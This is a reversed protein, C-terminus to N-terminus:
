ETSTTDTDSYRVALERTSEALADYGGAIRLLAEKLGIDRTPNAVARTQEAMQTWLEAEYPIPM